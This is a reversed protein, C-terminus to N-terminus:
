PAAVRELVAMMKRAQAERSHAPAAKLSAAALKCRFDVDDALRRAADALADPDEAAVHIGAGYSALIATAEGEPAAMLLPLGMAMAEFMKSPIVDEFVPSNKLHVLAVDCLSWVAPIREKPQRALFVVNALGRRVADAILQDREAGGGALLFAIDHRENLREAADLGNDLSAAMAQKMLAYARTPGKALKAALAAAEPMLAEDEFCRWILGWEAATEAPLGEALMALGMARARGVLRPLLFTGGADPILGIRAFAQM